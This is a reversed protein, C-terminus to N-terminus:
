SVDHMAQRQQVHERLTDFPAPCTSTQDHAREKELM